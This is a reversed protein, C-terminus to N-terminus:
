SKKGKGGWSGRYSQVSCCFSEPSLPLNLILCFPTIKFSIFADNRHGGGRLGGVNNKKKKRKQIGRQFPQLFAAM